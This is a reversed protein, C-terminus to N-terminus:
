HYDWYDVIDANPGVFTFTVRWNGSVAVAWHGELKGKLSHLNYGPLNMELPSTAVNLSRLIQGLKKAHIAQIGRTSGTRFFAELGKHQFKIIVTNYGTVACPASSDILRWSLQTLLM